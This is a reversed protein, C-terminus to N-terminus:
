TLNQMSKPNNHKEVMEPLESLKDIKWAQKPPTQGANTYATILAAHMDLKLTPAIDKNIRDGIYLINPLHVGIRDAAAIFIRQDPKRFSFQYSYLRTDFLDFIGLEKLHQDLACANVFTNSIIGLKLGQQKLSTLTQLLDPETKAIKHLPEYWLWVLKQWQREELHIRNKQGTKKLVALSDFDNSTIKSILLHLLLNTINKMRYFSFNGAPQDLSKLFDYTLQAGQKFYELRDLKGFRAITEGFDFIVAKIQNNPM